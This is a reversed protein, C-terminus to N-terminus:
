RAKRRERRRKLRELRTCAECMRVQHLDSTAIRRVEQCGRKACVIEVTRKQYHPSDKDQDINTLSGKVIKPYEKRLELESEKLEKEDLIKRSRSQKTKEATPM